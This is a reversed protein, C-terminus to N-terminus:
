ILRKHMFFIQQLLLKHTHSSFYIPETPTTDTSIDILKYVVGVDGVSDHRSEFTQGLRGWRHPWAPASHTSEGPDQDQEQQSNASTLFLKTGSGVGRGVGIDTVM